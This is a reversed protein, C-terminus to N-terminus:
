NKSRIWIPHRMSSDEPYKGHGKPYLGSHCQCGGVQDCPYLWFGDTPETKFELTPTVEFEIVPEIAKTDVSAVIQKTSLPDKVQTFSLGLLAVICLSQMAFLFNQMENEKQKPSRYPYLTIIKKSLFFTVCSLDWTVM